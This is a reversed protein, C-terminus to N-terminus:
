EGEIVGSWKETVEAIYDDDFAVVDPFEERDEYPITADVIARSNTPYEGSTFPDVSESWEGDLIDIDDNM